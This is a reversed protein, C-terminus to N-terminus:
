RYSVTGWRVRRGGGSKLGGGRWEERGDHGEGHRREIDGENAKGDPEGLMEHLPALRGKRERRARWPKRNDSVKMLHWLRVKPFCCKLPSLLIACTHEVIQEERRAIVFPKM